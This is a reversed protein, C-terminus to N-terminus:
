RYAESSLIMVEAKDEYQGVPKPQWRRLYRKFVQVTRGSVYKVQGLQWKHVRLDQATLAEIVNGVPWSIAAKVPQCETVINEFM